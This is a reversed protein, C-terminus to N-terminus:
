NADTSGHANSEVMATAHHDEIGINVIVEPGRQEKEKKKAQLLLSSAGDVM